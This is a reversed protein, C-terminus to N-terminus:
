NRFIFDCVIRQPTRRNINIVSAKFIILVWSFGDRGKKRLAKKVSLTEYVSSGLSPINIHCVLASTLRM